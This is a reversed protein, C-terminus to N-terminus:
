ISGIIAELYLTLTPEPKFFNEENFSLKPQLEFFLWHRHAARKRLRAGFYYGTTHNEPESAGLIGANFVLAHRPDLEHYLSLGHAYDFQNTKNTWIANASFRLLDNWGTRTEIDFQTSEGLGKEDHWFLLQTFRFNWGKVTEARRLRGRVFEQPPDRLVVGADAHINWKSSEQMVYRLSTSYDSRNGQFVPNDQQEGALYDDEADSAFLINLKKEIRPLDVKIKIRSVEDFTGDNNAVLGYGFRVFSGRAEEDIRRDGFFMDVNDVFDVLHGSLYAHASDLMGLASDMLGPSQQLTDTREEGLTDADTETDGAKTVDATFILPSAPNDVSITQAGCLPTWAPLGIVCCMIFWIKIGM